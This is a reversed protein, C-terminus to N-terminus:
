TKTNHPQPHHPAQSTPSHHPSRNAKKFAVVLYAALFAMGLLLVIAPGTSVGLLVSLIVACVAGMSGLMGGGWFLWRTSNTFLSVTAAPVVLLGISLVAGVAQFSAMLAMIMLTFLLYNVAKVSVGQVAAVSPEFLTLLMPRMFLTSSLLTICAIAFFVKLDANGVSMINGFLWMELDQATRVYELMIIGLAFASTYFIALATGQQIRSDRSVMMSCLGVILAAVLAGGFASAQTLTGTVLVVIVIGPLLTHSLAGLTLASRRLLVFGSVFGNTFGILAAAVLARQFFPMELMEWLENM